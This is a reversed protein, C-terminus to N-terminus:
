APMAITSPRRIRNWRTRSVCFSISRSRRIHIQHRMCYDMGMGAATGPRTGPETDPLKTGPAQEPLRTDPETDPLKTDPAQEPLRTDPAREPLRTDPATDSLKM